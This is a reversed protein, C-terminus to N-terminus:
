RQQGGNLRRRSSMGYGSESLQEVIGSEQLGTEKQAAVSTALAIAATGDGFAMVVGGPIDAVATFPVNLRLADRFDPNLGYPLPNFAVPFGFGQQM